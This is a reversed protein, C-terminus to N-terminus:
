SGNGQKITLNEYDTQSFTNLLTPTYSGGGAAIGSAILPLQINLANVLANLKTTLETIKVLGGYNSGNLQVESVKSVLSVFASSDSLFDVVVISNVEPILLFGNKNDAMLRVGVLDADGNIPSCYCTNETLNVSIVTCVIAYGNHNPKSIQRIANIIDKSM